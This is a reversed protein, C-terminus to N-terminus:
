AHLSGIISRQLIQLERSNVLIYYARSVLTDMSQVILSMYNPIPQPINLISCVPFLISASKIYLHHLWFKIGIIHLTDLNGPTFLAM